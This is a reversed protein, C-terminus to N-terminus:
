IFPYFLLDVNRETITPSFVYCRYLVSRKVFYNLHLTQTRLSGLHGLCFLINLAFHLNSACRSNYLGPVHAFSILTHSDLTTGKEERGFLIRAKSIVKQGERDASSERKALHTGLGKHLVTPSRPFPHPHSLGRTSAPGSGCLCLEAPKPSSWLTVSPLSPRPTMVRPLSHFDSPAPCPCGPSNESNRSIDGGQSERWSM